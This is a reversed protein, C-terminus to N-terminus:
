KNRDIFLPSWSLCGFSVYMMNITFDGDADIVEHYSAFYPPSTKSPFLSLGAGLVRHNLGLAFQNVERFSRCFEQMSQAKLVIMKLFNM